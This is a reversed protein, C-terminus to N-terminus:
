GASDGGAGVAIPQVIDEKFKGTLDIGHVRQMHEEFDAVAAAGNNGFQQMLTEKAKNFLMGEVDLLTDYHNIMRASESAFKTMDFSDLDVEEFLISIMSARHINESQIKAKLSKTSDAFINAMVDNLEVDIEGPGLEAVEKATLKDPSEEPPEETDEAADEETDATEEDTEEDTKEDGGEDDTKFLDDEEELLLDSRHRIGAMEMLRTKKKM